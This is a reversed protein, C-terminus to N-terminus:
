VTQSGIEKLSYFLKLVLLKARFGYVTLSGYVCDFM